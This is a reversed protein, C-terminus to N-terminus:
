ATEKEAQRSLAAYEAAIAKAFEKHALLLAMTDGDGTPANIVIEINHKNVASTIAEALTEVDLGADAVPVAALAAAPDPDMRVRDWEEDTLPDPREPAASM